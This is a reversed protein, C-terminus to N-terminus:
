WPSIDAPTENSADQKLMQKVTQARRDNLLELKKLAARREAVIDNPPKVAIQGTAQAGAANPVDLSGLLRSEDPKDEMGRSSEANSVTQGLGRGKRGPIGDQQPTMANRTRLSNRVRAFNELAQADDARYRLVGAFADAAARLNGAYFFSNGLNLLADARETNKKAQLLAQTFQRNAYLFDKRRYAAAGEGMRAQYGSLGRYNQQALLYQRQSYAAYAERWLTEDAQVSTSGALAALLITRRTPWRLHNLLLLLLALALPYAFLERWSRTSDTQQRSAPLNLIGQTYLANLDRGDDSVSEVRGGGSTFLDRYSAFDPRSIAQVQQQWPNDSAEPIVGGDNSAVTLVYVPIRATNLARAAQVAAEGAAGSLSSTESDNILLIARSRKPHNLHRRALDLAAGLYSGRATFLSADALEVSQALAAMDHTLPLLIGAEGAYVILGVREGHLQALLDQVKLKARALRTPAVDTTAMSASVDLVIMVDMDHRTQRQNDFSDLSLRPGALAVALLIWFAWISVVRLPRQQRATGRRLAWAQLHPEAYRTWQQKRWRVLAIFLMPMLALLMWAPARWEVQQLAYWNM